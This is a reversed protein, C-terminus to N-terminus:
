SKPKSITSIESTQEQINKISEELNQPLNSISANLSAPLKKISENLNEQNIQLIGNVFMVGTIGAIAVIIGIAIKKGQRKKHSKGSTRKHCKTCYFHGQTYVYNHKCFM